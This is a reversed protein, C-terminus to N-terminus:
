KRAADKATEILKSYRAALERHVHAVAPDQAETASSLSQTRRRAYYERDDETM